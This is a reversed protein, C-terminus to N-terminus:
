RASSARLAQLRAFRARAELEGLVTQVKEELRASTMPHQQEDKLMSDAFGTLTAEQDYGHAHCATVSLEVIQDLYPRPLGAPIGPRGRQLSAALAAKFEGLRGRGLAELQARRIQFAM